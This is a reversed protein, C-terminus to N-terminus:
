AHFQYRRHAPSQILSNNGEPFSYYNVLQSLPCELVKTTLSMMWWFLSYHLWYYRWIQSYPIPQSHSSEALPVSKLNFLEIDSLESSGTSADVYHRKIVMANKFHIFINNWMNSATQYRYSLGDLFHYLENMDQVLEVKHFCLTQGSFGIPTHLFIGNEVLQWSTVAFSADLDHLM